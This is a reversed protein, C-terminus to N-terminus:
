GAGPQSPPEDRGPLVAILLLPVGIVAFLLGAGTRSLLLGTLIALVASAATLPRAAPLSRALGALAAAALGLLLVGPLALVLLAGGRSSGSSTLLAAALVLLVAAVVLVWLLLRLQRARDPGYPPRTSV